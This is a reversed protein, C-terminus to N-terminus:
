YVVALAMEVVVQLPEAVLPTVSSDWLCVVLSFSVFFIFEHFITDSLTFSFLYEFWFDFYLSM